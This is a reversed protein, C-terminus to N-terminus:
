FIPSLEPAMPNQEMEHHGTRGGPAGGKGEGRLKGVLHKRFDWEVKYLKLVKQPPLVVPFRERYYEQELRFVQEKYDLIRALIENIEKDSLNGANEHTYRFTNREEEMVKMKRNTFDNYVPWFALKESPTLELNENFYAEREQNFRKIQEDTQANAAGSLILLTLSVITILNPTIRRKM